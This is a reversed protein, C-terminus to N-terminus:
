GAVDVNNVVRRVGPLAKATAQVVQKLYFSSVSGALTVVGDDVAVDLQRLDRYGRNDLARRVNTALQTDQLDRGNLTDANEPQTGDSNPLRRTPTQTAPVTSAM